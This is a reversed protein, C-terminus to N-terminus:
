TPPLINKVTHFGHKDALSCSSWLNLSRLLFFPCCVPLSRLMSRKHDQEGTQEQFLIQKVTVISAPDRIRLFCELSVGFLPFHSRPRLVFHTQSQGPNRTTSRSFALLPPFKLFFFHCCLPWSVATRANKRCIQSWSLQSTVPAFRICIRQKTVFLFNTTALLQSNQDGRFIRKGSEFSAFTNPSTYWITCM